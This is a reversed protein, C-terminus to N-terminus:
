PEPKNRERAVRWELDPIQLADLIRLAHEIIVQSEDLLAANDFAPEPDPVKDGEVIVNTVYPGLMVIM